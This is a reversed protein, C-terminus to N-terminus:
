KITNIETKVANLKTNQATLSKKQATMAAKGEESVVGTAALKGDILKIQINNQEIQYDISKILRTKVNEM